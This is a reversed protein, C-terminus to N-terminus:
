NSTKDKKKRLEEEFKALEERIEESRDESTAQERAEKMMNYVYKNASELGEKKLKLYQERNERMTQTPAIGTAEKYRRDDIRGQEFMDDFDQLINNREKLILEALKVKLWENRNINLNQSIFELDHILAKSLRINFQETEM